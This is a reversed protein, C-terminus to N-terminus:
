CKRRQEQYNDKDPNWNENPECKAESERLARVTNDGQYTLLDVDLRVPPPSEGSIAIHQM